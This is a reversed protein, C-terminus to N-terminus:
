NFENDDTSIEMDENQNGGNSEFVLKIPTKEGNCSAIFLTIVLFLVFLIPKRM